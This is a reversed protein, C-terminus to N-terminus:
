KFINIIDKNFNDKINYLFGNLKKNINHIQHSFVNIQSYIEKMRRKRLIYKNKQNILKFNENICEKKNKNKFNQNLVLLIKKNKQDYTDFVNLDDQSRNRNKNNLIIKKLYKTDEYKIEGKENNENIIGKDFSQNKNLSKKNLKIFNDNDIGNIISNKKDEENDNYLSNTRNNRHEKLILAKNLNSIKKLTQETNSLYTNNDNIFSSNNQSLTNIKNRNNTTLNTIKYNNFNDYLSIHYIEKEFIVKKRLTFINNKNLNIKNEKKPLPKLYKTFPKFGINKTINQKMFNQIFGNSDNKYSNNNDKKTEENIKKGDKINSEINNDNLEKLNNKINSLFKKQYFSFNKNFLSDKFLNYLYKKKSLNSYPTIRKLINKKQSLPKKIIQSTINNNNSNNLKTKNIKKPLSISLLDDM